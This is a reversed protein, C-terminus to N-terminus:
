KHSLYEELWKVLNQRSFTDPAGKPNADASGASFPRQVIQAKEKGHLLVVVSDEFPQGRLWDIIQIGDKRPLAFDLVFTQPLPYKDRDAYKGDGKVYGVLEEGESVSGIFQRPDSQGMAIQLSLSNEKSENVTLVLFKEKALRAMIM